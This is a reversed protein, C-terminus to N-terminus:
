QIQQAMAQLRAPNLEGIHSDILRGQNFALTVPLGPANFHQMLQQNPDLVLMNDPLALDPNNRVFNEVTISSEGANVLWVTLEPNQQAFYVLAPMERLCPACWSAWLNIILPQKQKSLNVAQGQLTPLQIDPLNQVQDRDLPQWLKLGAWVVVAVLLIASAAGLAKPQTKFHMLTVVGATILAATLSYGPQWFYLISLWDYSFASPDQAVFALRAAVLGYWFCHQAWRSFDLETDSSRFARNLGEAFLFFILMAGILYLRDTSLMLPGLSIAGM